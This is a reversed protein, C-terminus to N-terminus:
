RLVFERIFETEMLSEESGFLSYANINYMDLKKLVKVRESATINFKWLHDQRKNAQSFVKEHSVYRAQDKEGETCVTYYSQQLFHRKDTRMYPGLVKINPETGWAFKIGSHELYAFISVSETKEKPLERFAFYTAIYPSESWDLLPSPFGYHRLYTMFEQGPFDGGMM